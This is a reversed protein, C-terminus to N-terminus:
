KINEVVVREFEAEYEKALFSWDYRELSKKLERDKKIKEKNKKKNKIACRLMSVLEEFTEYFVERHLREPIHEPYALRRPLIPWAGMYIAEVVSFGFFDHVSTVPLVDARSLWKAYEERSKLFGSQIVRGGLREKYKLFERESGRPIEGLIAVEFDLGEKALVSLAECFEAPNKDYEWRHNWLVLPLAEKESEISERSEISKKLKIIDMGPYLVKSKAKLMAEFRPEFLRPYSKFFEPLASFFSDMHYKSNFFIKVAVKASVLNILGFEQRKKEVDKEKPSWPYTMQNEHFYIATPINRTRSRTLELFTELNLMDSAVILEPTSIKKNFEEALTVAGEQMRKKWTKAPLTLLDVEFSSSNSFGEIWEKHSGGFFPEVM